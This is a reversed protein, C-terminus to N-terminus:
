WATVSPRPLRAERFFAPKDPRASCGRDGLGCRLQAMRFRRAAAHDAQEFSARDGLGREAALRRAHQVQQGSLTVGVASAGRQSALWLERGCRLWRRAGARWRSRSRGSGAEAGIPTAVRLWTTTAMTCRWRRPPSM